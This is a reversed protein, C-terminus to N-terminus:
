EKRRAADIADDIAECNEITYNWRLELALRELEAIRKWMAHYKDMADGIAKEVGHASLYHGGDAHMVALLEGIWYITNDNAAIRELLIRERAEVSDRWYSAAQYHGSPDRINDAVALPPLELTTM